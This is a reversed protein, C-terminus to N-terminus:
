VIAKLQNISECRMLGALDLRWEMVWTFVDSGDERLLLGENHMRIELPFVRYVICLCKV